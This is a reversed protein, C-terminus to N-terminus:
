ELVLRRSEGLAQALVDALDVHDGFERVAQQTGLVFDTGSFASNPSRRLALWYSAPDEMSRRIILVASEGPDLPM